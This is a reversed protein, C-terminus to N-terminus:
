RVGMEKELATMARDVRRIVKEVLKSREPRSIGYRGTGIWCLANFAEDLLVLSQKLRQEDSMHRPNQIEM